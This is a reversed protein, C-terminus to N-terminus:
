PSGGAGGAGGAGCDLEPTSSGAEFCLGPGAFDAGLAQGDILSCAMAPDNCDSSCTCAPTCFGFDGADGADATVASAYLCAGDFRKSGGDWACAGGLGCTASCHGQTTSGADAQCFGLCDDPEAPELASPLKCPAGLRKGTPKKTTCTGALFSQDCYLGPACDIDGRCSPLCAPFVVACTGDVCVEGSECPCPSSTAGLLGPVCAFDARNHCKQKGTAPPGFSCGEVCFSSKEDFPFCIAGAGRQACQQDTQCPASCFGHPPATGALLQHNETICTLGVACDAPVKCARGVTGVGTGPLLPPQGGSGASGGSGSSGGSGGSDSAGGSSGDAGGHGDGPAGADTSSAGSTGVNSPQGAAPTSASGAVHIAPGTGEDNGGCAAALGLALWTASFGVRLTARGWAQSRKM